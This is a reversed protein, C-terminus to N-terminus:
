FLHWGSLQGPLLRVFALIRAPRSFVTFSATQWWQFFHLSTAWAQRIRQLGTSQLRGPEKTWPIKWAHISSHTATEKELPDEWRLSRVWTERMTSLRKVTQAVLSVRWWQFTGTFRGENLPLCGVLSLARISGHHYGNFQVSWIFSKHLICVTDWYLQKFIYKKLLSSSSFISQQCSWPCPQPISAISADHGM